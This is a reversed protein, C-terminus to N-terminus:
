VASHFDAKKSKWEDEPVVMWSEPDVGLGDAIRNIHNFYSIVQTGLSIQEDTYGNDRLAQTDGANMKGPTLTLKVAYDCFARQQTTLNAERYDYLM